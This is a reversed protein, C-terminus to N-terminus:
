IGKRIYAADRHDHHCLTYGRRLMEEHVGASKDIEIIALKPLHRDEIGNLVKMEWGEVDISMLDIQGNISLSDLIDSLRNCEVERGVYDVGGPWEKHSNYIFTEGGHLSLLEKKDSCGFNLIKVDKDKTVLSVEECFEKIPDIYVGAYGYDLLDLTNSGCRDSIDKEAELAEKTQEASWHRDITHGVGVEVFLGSDPLHEDYFSELWSPIGDNNKLDFRKGKQKPTIILFGQSKYSKTIDHTKSFADYIFKLGNKPCINKDLTLPGAEYPGGDPEFIVLDDIIFVDGSIDRNNIIIGVERELPLRTDYDETDGYSSFKFDAGPFHADLFFFTNGDLESLVSPLKEYSNGHLVTCERRYLKSLRDFKEKAFEYIKDHIEISYFNNFSHRMSHELTAGEGTGTEVYNELSFKNIFDNTDIAQFYYGM